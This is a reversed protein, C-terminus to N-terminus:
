SAMRIIQDGVQMFHGGLDDYDNDYAWHAVVLAAYGMTQPLLSLEATPIVRYDQYGSMFSQLKAVNVHGKTVSLDTVARAIDLIYSGNQCRELDLLYANDTNFLVNNRHVDAHIVGQQTNTLNLGAIFSELRKTNPMKSFDADSFYNAVNTNLFQATNDLITLGKLANHFRALASGVARVTSLSSNDSVHRGDIAESVFFTRDRYDSFVEGKKDKVPRITPVGKAELSSIIRLQTQRQSSSISEIEKLYVIRGDQLKIRYNKNSYSGKVKEYSRMSLGYSDYIVELRSSIM